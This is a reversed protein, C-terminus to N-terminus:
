SPTHRLSRRLQGQLSVELLHPCRSNPKHAHPHSEPPASWFSYQGPPRGGKYVKGTAGGGARSACQRMWREGTRPAPTNGLLKKVTARADASLGWRTSRGASRPVSPLPCCGKPLPHPERWRLDVCAGDQLVLANLARGYTPRPHEGAAEEGALMPRPVGAPVGVRRARCARCRAVGKSCRTPSKGGCTLVLVTRFSGATNKAYRWLPASKGAHFVWEGMEMPPPPSIAQPEDGEGAPM